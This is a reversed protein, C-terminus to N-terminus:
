QAVSCGKAYCVVVVVQHTETYGVEPDGQVELGEDELARAFAKANAIVQPQYSDKFPNMEIAAMLLGLLTGLHHNSVAVPFV